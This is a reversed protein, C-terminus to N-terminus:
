DKRNRCSGNCNRYNGCGCGQQGRLCAYLAWAALAALILIVILDSM